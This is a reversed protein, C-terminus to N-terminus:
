NISNKPLYFYENDSESDNNESDNERIIMIMVVVVILIMIVIVIMLMIIKKVRLLARMIMTDMKTVLHLMCNTSLCIHIRNCFHLFYDNLLSVRRILFILTM